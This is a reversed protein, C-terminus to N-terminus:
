QFSNVRCPTQRFSVSAFLQLFFCLLAKKLSARNALHHVAFFSGFLRSAISSLNSILSSLHSNLVSQSQSPSVLISRPQIVLWKQPVTQNSRSHSIIRAPACGLADSRLPSQGDAMWESQEASSQREVDEGHESTGTAKYCSDHPM